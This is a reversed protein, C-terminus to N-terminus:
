VFLPSMSAMLIDVSMAGRPDKVDGVKGSIAGSKSASSAHQPSSPMSSKRPRPAQPQSTSAQNASATSRLSSFGHAYEINQGLGSAVSPTDDGKGGSTPSGTKAGSGPIMYGEPDIRVDSGPARISLHIHPGTTGKGTNGSKAIETGATVKGSATVKSLHAFGYKTGSDGRLFAQTGGYLDTNRTVTGGEPAYIPTGIDADIDLGTHDSSVQASGKRKGFRSNLKTNKGKTIAKWALGSMAGGGGSTDSSVNANYGAVGQMMLPTKDAYKKAGALMDMQMSPAAKGTAMQQRFSDNARTKEEATKEEKEEPKDPDAGGAQTLPDDIFPSWKGLIDNTRDKLYTIADTFLHEIKDKVWVFLEKGVTGDALGLVFDAIDRFKGGSVKKIFDDLKESLKLYRGLKYTGYGVAAAASAILLPMGAAGIASAAVGRGIFTAVQRVALRSTVAGGMRTGAGIAARMGTKGLAGAARATSSGKLASATRAVAKAAGRIGSKGGKKMLNLLAKGIGGAKSIATSIVKSIIPMLFMKAAALGGFLAGLLGGSGGGSGAKRELPNRIKDYVPKKSKSKLESVEDYLIKYTKRNRVYDKKINVLQKTIDEQVSVTKVLLETTVNDALEKTRAVLDKFKQSAM